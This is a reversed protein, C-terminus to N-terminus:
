TTSGELASMMARFKLRTEELEAEPVSGAVVGGGAFLRGRAGSIEACRLAIGWEGNGEADVWGVPGAYRAREMGELDRILTMADDSPRGCIAATPHLDGAVELVSVPSRLTGSVSTALHQVNALRLLHPESGVDLDRCLPELVEVVSTLSPSHESLDKSSSLLEAGILADEEETAGRRATGALVLSSIRESERGVLLEPTAGVLGDIAFTYCEPYSASLADTLTPIHFEREAWIHIDRALVVKEVEGGAIAKLAREVIELWEIEPVTSGAYRVKVHSDPRTGTLDPFGAGDIVSVSCGGPGNRVVVKPIVLVSGADSPDFTFAGLAVPAPDGDAVEIEAFVGELDSAARRFRDPGSGVEIRAVEGWAVLGHGKRSWLFGDQPLVHTLAVQDIRRTRQKM